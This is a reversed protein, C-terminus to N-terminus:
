HRVKKIPEYLPAISSIITVSRKKGRLYSTLPRSNSSRRRQSGIHGDNGIDREGSSWLHSYKFSPCKRHPIGCSNRHKILYLVGHLRVAPISTYSWANKVEASCPTSHNAESGPWKVVPEWQIPPQTPGLAPRFATAFLCFEQGQESDFV